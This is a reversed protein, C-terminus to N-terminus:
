ENLRDLLHTVISEVPQGIDVTIADDPEELDDFQSRLMGPQMFHGARAVMREMIVEYSGKLYVFRIAPFAARFRSRYTRKLASCAMVLPQPQDHRANLEDVLADLWPLRDADTLPIGASMKTINSPPHHDDADIFTGNLACALRHGITSRGSGSVGIVLIVNM